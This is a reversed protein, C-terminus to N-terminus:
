GELCRSDDHIAHVRHVHLRDWSTAAYIAKWHSSDPSCTSSCCGVLLVSPHHFSSPLPRSSSSRWPLPLSSSPLPSTITLRRIHSARDRLICLVLSFSRLVISTFIYSPIFDFPLQSVCEPTFSVPFQHSTEFPM